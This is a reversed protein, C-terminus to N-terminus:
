IRVRAPSASQARKKFHRRVLPNLLSWLLNSSRVEGTRATRFPNVATYLSACRHGDVCALGCKCTVVVEMSNRTNGDTINPTNPVSWDLWPNSERAFPRLHM